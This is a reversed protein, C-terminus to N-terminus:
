LLVNEQINEKKQQALFLMSLLLVYYLFSPIDSYLNSFLCITLIIELKYNRIIKRLESVSFIKM